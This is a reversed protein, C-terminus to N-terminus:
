HLITTPLQVATVSRVDFPRRMTLVVGWGVGTADCGSRPAPALVFRNQDLTLKARRECVTGLWGVLVEQDTINALGLDTPGFAIREIERELAPRGAAVLGDHAVTVKLAGWQSPIEVVLRDPHVADLPAPTPDSEASPEAAQVSSVAGTSASPPLSRAPAPQESPFPQAICGTLLVALAAALLDVRPSSSM